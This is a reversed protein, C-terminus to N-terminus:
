HETRCITNQGVFLKRYSDEPKLTVSRQIQEGSKFDVGSLNVRLEGFVLLPLVKTAKEIGHQGVLRLVPLNMDDEIVIGSVFPVVVPQRLKLPSDPKVERRSRRTPQVLNFDYEAQQLALCEVPSTELAFILQTLGNFSEEPPM